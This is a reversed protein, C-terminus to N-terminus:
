EIVHPSIARDRGPFTDFALILSLGRFAGVGHECIMGARHTNLDPTVVAETEQDIVRPQLPPM